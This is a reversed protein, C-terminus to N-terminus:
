DRRQNERYSGPATGVESKFLRAFSSVDIYGCQVCINSL